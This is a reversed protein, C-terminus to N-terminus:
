DKLIEIRLIFGSFPLFFQLRFSTSQSKSPLYELPLLKLPFSKSEGLVDTIIATNLWDLKIALFCVFSSSDLFRSWTTWQRNLGGHFDLLYNQRFIFKPISSVKNIAKKPRFQDIMNRIGPYFDSSTVLKKELFLIRDIFVNILSM